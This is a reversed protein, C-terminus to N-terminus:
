KRFVKIASILLIAGLLISLAAVSVAGLLQSGLYAGVISGLAMWALFRRSHALARMSPARRLRLISVLLMPISIMLSLTGALKIDIGYLLVLTPILLEGGAVGLMSSVVGIPVGVLIGLSMTLPGAEFGFASATPSMGHTMILLALLALLGGVTRNLTVSRLQLALRSGILAGAISGALLSLAPLWHTELTLTEQSILRFALAFVVTVFSILVNTMIAERLDFRFLGVLAPLRFEAGGLGILGGLTGVLAGLGFPGYGQQTTKVSGRRAAAEGVALLVAEAVRKPREAVAYISADSGSADVEIVKTGQEIEAGDHALGRLRGTLPARLPTGDITAIEEGAVVSAGIALRSRFTGSVPSYVFRERAHGGLERPEGTLPQARGSRILGGLNHGYATEVVLDTTKGAVFNPGLGITLPALGRQVEPQERKRMRADVLVDPKVASILADFEVDVVPVARRCNLMHRLSEISRAYKAHIGELSVKDEFLADVFAVGRRAHAPKSRDHLVVHHGARFLALAVASGVDGTGRVLVVCM